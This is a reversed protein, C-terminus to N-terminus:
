KKLRRRSALALGVLGTGLLALSAPEPVASNTVNMQYLKFFDNNNDPGGGATTAIAAGIILSRVNNQNVTITRFAGSALNGAYGTFEGAGSGDLFSSAISTTVINSSVYYILDADLGTSGGTTQRIIFDQIAVASSFTFLIFEREGQNDVQWAPTSNLDCQSGSIESDTCIGMGINNVGFHTSNVSPDTLTFAAGTMDITGLVDTWTKTITNGQNAGDSNGLGITAAQMSACALMTLLYRKM